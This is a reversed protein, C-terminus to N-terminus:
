PAGPLTAGAALLARNRTPGSGLVSTHMTPPGEIPELKRVEFTAGAASVHASPGFHKKAVQDAEDQDLDPRLRKMLIHPDNPDGSHIKFTTPRREYEM